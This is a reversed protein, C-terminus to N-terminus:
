LRYGLQMGFTLGQMVFKVDYGPDIEGHIRGYHYGIQMGLQLGTNWTYYAAGRLGGEFYPASGSGAKSQEYESMGVGAYPNVEVHFHRDLLWGIGPHITIQYSRVDILPSNSNQEIMLHNTSAELGVIFEGDELLKSWPTMWMLGTRGTLDWNTDRYYNASNLEDTRDIIRIRATAPLMTYGIRLDNMRYPDYVKRIVSNFDEDDENNDSAAASLSGVSIALLAVLMGSCLARNRGRGTFRAHLDSTSTVFPVTTNPLMPSRKPGGRLAELSLEVVPEATLRVTPAHTRPAPNESLV